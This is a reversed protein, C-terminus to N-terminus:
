AMSALEATSVPWAYPRDHALREVEAVALDAMAPLENGVSGAIHPTLTVNPLTYLLDDDPLPEPDTVDLLANIRGSAAQERLADHDVLVGRATNIFTAGDPMAALQSRGIMGLTSPLIPAHLSTVRSLAMLQDLGVLEAGLAAAEEVSVTPDALLVRFSFPRLLDLVMRGIRSAGIIGVTSQYNGVEPPVAARAAAWGHTRGHQAAVLANKGSLLIAAVTFEAVPRANAQAATTVTIGRAWCEPDLHGKVSGAAHAILRLRPALDLVAPSVRPCGWGTILADLRALVSRAEASGFETLVTPTALEAVTDLRSMAESTFLSDRLADARMAFAIV